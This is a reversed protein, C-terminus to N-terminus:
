MSSSRQAGLVVKEPMMLGLVDVFVGRRDLDFPQHRPEAVHDNVIPQVKRHPPALHEAQDAARAGALGHQEVSIPSLCGSPPLM